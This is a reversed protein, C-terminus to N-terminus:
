LVASGHVLSGHKAAVFWADEASVLTGDTM